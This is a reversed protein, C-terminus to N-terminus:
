LQPMNQDFDIWAAWNCNMFISFKRDVLNLGSPCGKYCLTVFFFIAM